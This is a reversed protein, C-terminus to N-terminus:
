YVACGSILGSIGPALFTGRTALVDTCANGESNKFGGHNRRSKASVFRSLIQSYDTAGESNTGSYDSIKRVNNIEETKWRSVICESERNINHKGKSSTEKRKEEEVM